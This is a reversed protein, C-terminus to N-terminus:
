AVQVKANPCPAATPARSVTVTSKITGRFLEIQLTSGSPGMVLNRVGLMSEGTVSKGNISDILDGVQLIQKAPGDVVHLVHVRGDLEHRFSAGIGCAQGDPAPTPQTPSPVQQRLPAPAPAVEVTPAPAPAPIPVPAPAPAPVQVPFVEVAFSMPSPKQAPPEVIGGFAAANPKTPPRTAGPLSKPNHDAKAPNWHITEECEDCFSLGCKECDFTAAKVDCLGCLAM